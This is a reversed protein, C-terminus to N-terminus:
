EFADESQRAGGGLGVGVVARSSRRPVERLIEIELVVVVLVFVVSSRFFEERESRLRDTEDKRSLRAYDDDHRAHAERLVDRLRLRIFIQHGVMVRGRYCRVSRRRRRRVLFLFLLHVLLLLLFLNVDGLLVLLARHTVVIQTRVSRRNEDFLVSPRPRTLVVKV